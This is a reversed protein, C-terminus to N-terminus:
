ITRSGGFLHMVLGVVFCLLFVGFLLRAMALALHGLMSVLVGAFGLFGMIVACVLFIMAWRLM